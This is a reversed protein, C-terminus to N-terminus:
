CDQPLPNFDRSALYILKHQKKNRLKYIAFYLINVGRELTSYARRMTGPFSWCESNTKATNPSWMQIDLHKGMKRKWM